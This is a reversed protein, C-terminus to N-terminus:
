SYRLLTLTDTTVIPVISKICVCLISTDGALYIVYTFIVASIMPTSINM